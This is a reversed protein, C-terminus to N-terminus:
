AAVRWAHSAEDNAAERKRRWFLVMDSGTGGFLKDSGEGGYLKDDGANGALWDGKQGTGTDTNGNAIADATAIKTDGYLQDNGDGGSLIDSQTGGEILDIGLGTWIYDSGAGGEVWDDGAGLSKGGGIDDNLEGGIIHDNGATGALMDAYPQAAGDIPNGEADCVAQIGAKAPDADNPALDGTLTLTTTTQTSTDVLQLGLNGSQFNEIVAVTGDALTLTLNTDLTVSIRPDSLFAYTGDSHKEIVGSIINGAKDKLIGLGDSDRITDRGELTYADYGAGGDLTDNGAGGIM